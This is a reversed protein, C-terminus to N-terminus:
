FSKSIFNNLSFINNWDINPRTWNEFPKDDIYIKVNGMESLANSINEKSSLILIMEFNCVPNIERIIRFFTQINEYTNKIKEEHRIFIIKTDSKITEYFRQIRREYKENVIQFNEFNIKFDHCFEMGYLNQMVSVNEGKYCEDDVNNTLNPFFDDKLLPFKNCRLYKLKLFNNFNDQLCNNIDDLSKVRLWDFPFAKQRLNHQQLQYAICCSSGLSIYEM